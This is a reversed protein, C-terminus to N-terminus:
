CNEHSSLVQPFMGFLQYLKKKCHIFSKVGIVKFGPIRQLIYENKYFIVFQENNSYVPPFM